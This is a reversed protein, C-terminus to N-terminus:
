AVAPAARRPSRARERLPDARALVFANAVTFVVATIWASGVLPLAVGEVVVAVYNPHRSSATRARACWRCGPCSSRRPHELAARADRHVVLAAGAVAVVLVLM